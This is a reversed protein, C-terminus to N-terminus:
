TEKRQDVTSYKRKKQKVSKNIDDFPLEISKFVKSSSYKISLINNLQISGFVDKYIGQGCLKEM